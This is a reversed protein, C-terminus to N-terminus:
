DGAIGDTACDKKNKISKMVFEIEFNGIMRDLHEHNIQKSLQKYQKVNSQVHLKWDSDFAEFDREKGLKQYHEELM